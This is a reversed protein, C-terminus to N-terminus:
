AFQVGIHKGRRWIQRCTRAEDAMTFILSFELPTNAEDPLELYAGAKSLNRVVCDVSPWHRNFEIRGGKFARMRSTKRRDLM